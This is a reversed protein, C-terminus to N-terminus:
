ELIKSRLKVEDILASDSDEPNGIHLYSGKGSQALKKMKEIAKENNGFGVVSLIIGKMSKTQILYFLALDSKELDFDGDTALFIQNNGDKKFNAEVVDYAEKIGEGGKTIGGPTLGDIVKIIESKNDSSTTNLVKNISSAYTIISVDDIDRMELVMKKMSEKLIPLKKPNNMSTSVDILFVINNRKYDKHSLEGEKDPILSVITINEQDPKEKNLVILESDLEPKPFPRLFVITSTTQKGIYLQVFSDAYGVMKAKVIYLGVPVEITTKGDSGTPYLNSKIAPNFSVVSGKVPTETNKDLVLVTFTGKVVKDDPTLNFNPCETEIDEPIEKVTGKITLFFPDKSASTYVKIQRIFAGKKVPNYQIRIFQAENPAITQKSYKSSCDDLADMRLIYIDEIGNNKLIFDAYRISQGYIDPLTKVKEDIALSQALISQLPFILFLYPLLSKHMCGYRLM